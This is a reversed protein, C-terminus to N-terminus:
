ALIGAKSLANKLEMRKVPELGSAAFAKDLDAVSLKANDGPLTVGSRALLATVQPSLTKRTPEDATKAAAAQLDKIKTQEAALSDELEKIRKDSAEKDAAAKLAAGAFGLIPATVSVSLATGASTMAAGMAQLSQQASKAQTAIKGLGTGISNLAAQAQNRATINLALDAM